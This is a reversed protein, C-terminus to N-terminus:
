TGEETKTDMVSDAEAEGQQFVNNPNPAADNFARFKTTSFESKVTNQTTTSREEAPTLQKAAKWPEADLAAPTPQNSSTMDVDVSLSKPSETNSDIDEM